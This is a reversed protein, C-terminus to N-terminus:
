PPHSPLEMTFGFLYVEKQSIRHIKGMIILDRPSVVLVRKYKYHAVSCELPLDGHIYYGSEFSNDFAAKFDFNCLELALKNIDERAYSVSKM